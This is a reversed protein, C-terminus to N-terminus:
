RASVTTPIVPLKSIAKLKQKNSAGKSYIDHTVTHTEHGTLEKILADAIDARVLATVFTNRLGHFVHLSGFGLRTRLLGFAKSLAHSRKNYRNETTVPILYTDKSDAVLHDVVPKLSPHVPVTRVASKNKGTVINLSQIGDPYVVHETKLQCIEEIRFGTYAGILILDALPTNGAEIAGAHLKAIQDTTYAERRSGSTERGGGQPLEHGIFPNVKDQFEMRWGADYKMAWKWFATGAMLYQGLTNPARDLSKLWRDVSDFDLSAGNEKLFKSLREMKGCQQDIHKAGGGRSERFERFAKIRADTIPSKPKHAKPDNLILQAEEQETPSLEQTVGFVKAMVELAMEKAFEVNALEGELGTMAYVRDAKERRLRGEPSDNFLGQYLAQIEEADFTTQDESEGLAVDTKLKRAALAMGQATTAIPDKWSDGRAARKGRALAFAEKWEAIVAHRREMAESRLGTKLSRILVTKGGMAPRVDAPVALRVYWTSEGKKQILHDAM